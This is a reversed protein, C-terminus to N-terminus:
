ICKYRRTANTTLVSTEDLMGEYPNLPDVPTIEISVERGIGHAKAHEVLLGVVFHDELAWGTSDFVTPRNRYAEYCAPQQVLEALAPGVADRELLQCEGEVMAQDPFDPCVLSRELVPLPLEVKGPFDSGVANIHLHEPSSVPQLVPGAAVGVSTQTCVIDSERMITEPSAAEFRVRSALSLPATRPPLTEVAGSDIDYLLVREIPFLRSLAHLQTM